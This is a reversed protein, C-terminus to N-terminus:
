QVVLIHIYKKYKHIQNMWSLNAYDKKFFVLNKVQFGLRVNNETQRYRECTADQRKRLEDAALCAIAFRM